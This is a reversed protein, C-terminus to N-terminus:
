RNYLRYVNSLKIQEQLRDITKRAEDLEYALFYILNDGCLDRWSEGYRTAYLKGECDQIVEYKNNGVSIRILDDTNQYLRM